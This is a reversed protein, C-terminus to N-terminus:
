LEKGYSSNKIQWFYACGVRIISTRKSSLFVHSSMPACCSIKAIASPKGLEWSEYEFPYRCQFSCCNSPCLVEFQSGLFGGAQTMENVLWRQFCEQQLCTGLLEETIHPLMPILVQCPAKEQLWCGLGEICGPKRAEMEATDHDELM